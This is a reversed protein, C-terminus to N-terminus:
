RMAHDVTETLKLHTKMDGLINNGERGYTEDNVKVQYISARHTSGMPGFEEAFICRYEKDIEVWDDSEVAFLTVVRYASGFEESNKYTSRKIKKIKYGDELFLEAAAACGRSLREDAQQRSVCSTLLLVCFLGTIIKKM